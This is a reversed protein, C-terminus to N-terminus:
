SVRREGIQRQYDQDQLKELHRSIRERAFYAKRWAQHLKDVYVLECHALDRTAALFASDAELLQKEAAEIREDLTKAAM